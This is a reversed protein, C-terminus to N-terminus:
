GGSSPAVARGEEARVAESKAQRVQDMVQSTISPRPNPLLGLKVAVGGLFGPLAMGGLVGVLLSAMAKFFLEGLNADQWEPRLSDSVASWLNWVVVPGVVIMIGVLLAGFWNAPESIQRKVDNEFIRSAGTSHNIVGVPNPDDDQRTGVYLVSVRHGSRFGFGANTANAEFERGGDEQVFFRTLESASSSVVTDNHVQGTGIDSRSTTHASIHTRQSTQSDLVTGTRVTVRAEDISRIKASGTM